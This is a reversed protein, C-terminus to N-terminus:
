VLFYFNNIIMPGQGPSEKLLCVTPYMLLVSGVALFSEFVSWHVVVSVALLVANLGAYYPSLGLFSRCTEPMRNWEAFTMCTICFAPVLAIPLGLYRYHKQGFATTHLYWLVAAAASSALRLGLLFGWDRGYVALDMVVGTPMLFVVLASAIKGTFIREQRENALFAARFEPQTMSLRDRM